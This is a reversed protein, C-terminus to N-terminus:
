WFLYLLIPMVHLMCSTFSFRTCFKQGFSVKFLITPFGSRLQSSSLPPSTLSYLTLIQVPNVMSYIPGFPSTQSYPLARESELCPGSLRWLRITHSSSWFSEAEHLCLRFECIFRDPSASYVFDAAHRPPFPPQSPATINLQRRSNHTYDETTRCSPTLFPQASYKM